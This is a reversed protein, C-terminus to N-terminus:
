CLIKMILSLARNLPWCCLNSALVRFAYANPLEVIYPALLAKEECDEVPVDHEKIGWAQLSTLLLSAGLLISAKVVSPISSKVSITLPIKHGKNACRFGRMIAFSHINLFTRASTQSILSPDLTKRVRTNQHFIFIWPRSIRSQAKLNECLRRARSWYIFPDCRLRIPLRDQLNVLENKDKFRLEALANCEIKADFMNLAFNRGEGTISSDGPMSRANIQLLSFFLIVAYSAWGARGRLAQFLLNAKDNAMRCLPYIALISLMLLPYFYSVVSYSILHFLFLQALTAWFWIRNKSLLGWIGITLFYFM